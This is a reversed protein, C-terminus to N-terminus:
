PYNGYRQNNGDRGPDTIRHMRGGKRNRPDYRDKDRYEKVEPIVSLRTKPRRDRPPRENEEPFWWSLSDRSSSSREKPTQTRTAGHTPFREQWAGEALKLLQNRSVDRLEKPLQPKRVEPLIQTKLLDKLAEFALEAAEATAKQVQDTSKNSCLSMRVQDDDGSTFGPRDVVPAIQLNGIAESAAVRFDHRLKAKKAAVSELKVFNEVKDRKKNYTVRIEKLVRVFFKVIEDAFVTSKRTSTLRVILIGPLAFSLRTDVGALRNDITAVSEMVAESESNSGLACNLEDFGALSDDITAVVSEMEANGDESAESESAESESDPSTGKLPVKFNFLKFRCKRAAKGQPHCSTRPSHGTSRTQRTALSSGANSQCDGESLSAPRQFVVTEPLFIPKHARSPKRIYQLCGMVLEAHEPSYVILGKKLRKIEDDLSEMHLLLSQTDERSLLLIAGKAYKPRVTNRFTLNMGRAINLISRHQDPLGEELSLAKQDLVDRANRIVQRVEEDETKAEESWMKVSVARLRELDEIAPLGFAELLDRFNGKAEIRKLM